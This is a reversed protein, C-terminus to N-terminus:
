QAMVRAALDTDEVALWAGGGQYELGIKGDKIMKLNAESGVPATLSGVVKGGVVAPFASAKRLTVKKPWHAPDRALEQLDFVRRPTPGPTPNLQANVRAMRDEESEAKDPENAREVIVTDHVFRGFLKNGLSTHADIFGRAAPVKIYYAGALIVLSVPLAFLWIPHSKESM